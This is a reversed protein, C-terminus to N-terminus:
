TYVPSVVSVVVVHRLLGDHPGGPRLFFIVPVSGRHLQGDVQAHPGPWLLVAAHYLQGDVQAHPGPWWLLLVAAHYLQGDVQAHLGLLLSLPAVVLYLKGDVLELQDM